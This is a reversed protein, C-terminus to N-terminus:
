ALRLPSRVPGRLVVPAVPGGATVTPLTIPASIAAPTPVAGAQLTAAPISTAVAIAAPTATGDTGGGAASLNLGILTWHDNVGSTFSISVSAAGAEEGGSINGGSSANNTTENYRRTTGTGGGSITDGHTAHAFVLDNTASTVSLEPSNAAGNSTTSTGNEVADVGTYSATGVLIEAEGTSLTVVVNNAGTAPDLLYFLCSGASASSTQLLAGTTTGSRIETMSVGNYTATVTTGTVSGSPTAVSVGVLLVLDAGTCTHSVTHSTPTGTAVSTDTATDFAIAM